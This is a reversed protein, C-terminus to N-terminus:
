ARRQRRRYLRQAQAKACRADCYIVGMSRHQGYKARGSQRVFLRGCTENACTHYRAQEVIHNYLELCCTAFLPAARTPLSHVLGHEIVVKDETSSFSEERDIYVTPHFPILCMDFLMALYDQAHVLVYRDAKDRRDFYPSEWRVDEGAIEGRM